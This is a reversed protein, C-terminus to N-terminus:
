KMPTYCVAMPDEDLIQFAAPMKLTKRGDLFWVIEKKRNVEFFHVGEDLHGHGMWNVFVLNGNALLQIGLLWCINIQPIDDNTLSWIEEGNEDLEYAGSMCTYVINGNPLVVFGFADPRIEFEKIIEGNLSLKRIKNLGPQVVLYANDIKRAMRMGEHSIGDYPIDIQNTINGECDIERLQPEGLLGLLINGNQLPQCSFIERNAIYNMEVSGTSDLITIGATKSGSNHAYLIKGDPLSWLDFVANIDCIEKTVSGDKDVLLLKRLATDSCILTHCKDGLVKMAKARRNSRWVCFLLLEMKVSKPYQLFCVTRVADTLSSKMLSKEIDSAPINADTLTHPVGVEDMFQVM